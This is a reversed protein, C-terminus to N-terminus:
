PDSLYNMLIEAIRLDGPYTIKINAPDGEVIVVKGSSYARFISSDDPFEKRGDSLANLHSAFIETFNFGQPTQILYLGERPIYEKITSDEAKVLTDRVPIAPVVGGAGNELSVIVREILERSVLPRAADHILVHEPNFDEAKKLGNYVSLQRTEGGSVIIIKKTFDAKLLIEEMKDRFENVIVVVIGDIKRCSDFASITWEIIKKGKIEMFQKPIRNGVRTGRGGAVIIAINKMTM